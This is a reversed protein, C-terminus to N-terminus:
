ESARSFSLATFDMPKRLAETTAKMSPFLTETESALAASDVRLNQCTLTFVPLSKSGSKTESTM